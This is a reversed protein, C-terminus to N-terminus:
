LTKHPHFLFLHRERPIGDATALLNELETIAPKAGYTHRVLQTRRDFAMEGSPKRESILFARQSMVARPQLSRKRHSGKEDFTNGHM